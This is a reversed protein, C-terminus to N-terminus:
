VRSGMGGELILGQERGQGGPGPDQERVAKWPRAWNGEGAELAQGREEGRGGPGSGVGRRMRWPWAKGGAAKWPLVM